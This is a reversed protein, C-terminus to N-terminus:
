ARQVPRRKAQVRNECGRGVRHCSVGAPLDMLGIVGEHSHTGPTRAMPISAFRKSSNFPGNISVHLATQETAM